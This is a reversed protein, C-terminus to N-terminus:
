GFKGACIPGIGADISEQKTLLRGCVCCYGWKSSLAAAEHLTLVQWSGSQAMAGPAYDWRGKKKGPPPPVMKKAYLNGTTKAKVICYVTETVNDFYYGPATAMPKQGPKSMAPAKPQKLLFGIEKSAAGKSMEGVNILFLTDMKYDPDTVREDLLKTLFSKQPPTMEVFQETTAVSM